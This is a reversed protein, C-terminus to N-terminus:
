NSYLHWVFIGDICSGIHKFGDPVQHGTGVIMVQKDVKIRDTWVELWLCPVRDQMAFLLPTSADHVSLWQISGILQLPYKYVRRM